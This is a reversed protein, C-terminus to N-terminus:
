GRRASMRGGRGAGPCAEGGVVIFVHPVAGAGDPEPGTACLGGGGPVRSHVPRMLHSGQGVVRAAALGLAQDPDAVVQVGMGVGREEPGKRWGLRLAQRLAYLQHKRGPVATPEVPGFRFQADQRALGQGPAPRRLVRDGRLAGGLRLGAVRGWLADVPLEAGGIGAHAEFM